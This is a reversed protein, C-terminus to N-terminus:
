ARWQGADGLGGGPGVGGGGVDRDPGGGAVRRRRVSPTKDASRRVDQDSSGLRQEQHEGRRGSLNKSRDPCDDEIFYMGKGPGLTTRVELDGELPQFRQYLGGAIVRGCWTRQLPDSQRRSHPWGLSDSGKEASRM